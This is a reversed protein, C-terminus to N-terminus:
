LGEVEAKATLDLKEGTIREYMVLVEETTGEFHSSADYSSTIFVRSKVGDELPVYTPVVNDFQTIKGDAPLLDLGPKVEDAPKATEVTTSVIACYKGPAVVKHSNGMVSVYIDSLRPPTLLPHSPPNPLFFSYLRTSICSLLFGLSFFLRLLPWRWGGEGGWEGSKRGLQNQPIIIQGSDGEIGKVPKSLLCISRIVSGVQKVKDKPFYSPDGIIIPALAVEAEAGSGSRVGAATGDANYLVEDVGKNLIFIGGHIACLRSFGEPLNGLGYIPYIFPSKGYRDLSEAYLRLKGVCESAPRSLYSDDPELAMAHGLFEQATEDLWMKDYLQKMTSKTFDMGDWTKPNAQDYKAIYKLFGRLWNKQLLGLLGTKIAEAENAPVKAIASGKKYVYSGDILKFDMYRTVDTKVLVKVLNGNALIFKPVLDVNYDRNNGLLDFFQQPPEEGKCFKKYLNTLNLSACEGGYYSNRDLHLM